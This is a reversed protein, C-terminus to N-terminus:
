HSSMQRGSKVNQGVTDIRDSMFGDRRIARSRFAQMTAPGTRSSLHTSFPHQHHGSKARKQKGAKTVQNKAFRKLSQQPAHQDKSAVKRKDCGADHQM